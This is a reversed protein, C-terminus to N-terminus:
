ICVEIELRAVTFQHQLQIGGVAPEGAIRFREKLLDLNETPLAVDRLRVLAWQRDSPPGQGLGRGRQERILGRLLEPGSDLDTALDVIGLQARERGNCSDQAVGEDLCQLRIELSGAHGMPFFFSRLSQRLGTRSWGCELAYSVM